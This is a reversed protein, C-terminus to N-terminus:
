CIKSPKSIRYYNNKLYEYVYKVGYYTDKVGYYTDKVSDKLKSRPTRM